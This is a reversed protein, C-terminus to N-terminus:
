ILSNGKFAAFHLPTRQHMDKADVNAGLEVLARVVNERESLYISFTQLFISSMSYFHTLLKGEYVAHHLPTRKTFDEADVTAGFEILTRVINFHGSFYIFHNATFLSLFVFIYSRNVGILRLISRHKKIKTKPM